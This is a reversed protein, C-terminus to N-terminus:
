VEIMYKQEFACFGDVELKLVGLQEFFSSETLCVAATLESTLVSPIYWFIIVSGNSGGAFMLVCESLRFQSCFRRKLEELEKLTLEIAKKRLKSIVLSFNPPPEVRGPWIRILQGVTTTQRFLVVDEKYQNMRRKLDDSGYRQIIHELLGYDLFSWHLNLHLFLEEISETKMIDKLNDQIFQLHDPRVHFPLSTLSNRFTKLSTQKEEIENRTDNILREFRLEFDVVKAQVSSDDTELSVGNM